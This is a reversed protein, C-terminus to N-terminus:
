RTVMIQVNGANKIAQPKSVCVTIEKLQYREKLLHAVGNAVTEILQFHNGEVYETVLKCIADYDLTSEITDQCDRVDVPISLDILLRQSICQEWAHVGIRTSLNLANIQLIDL